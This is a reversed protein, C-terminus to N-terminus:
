LSDQSGVALDGSLGPMKIKHGGSDEKVGGSSTRGM